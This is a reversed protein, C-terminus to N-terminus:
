KPLDEGNKYAQWFAQTAGNWEVNNGDASPVTPLTTSGMPSNIVTGTVSRLESISMTHVTENSAVAILKPLSFAQDRLNKGRLATLLGRMVDQQRSIRSLDSGDGTGKRARLLKVIEAGTYHKTTVKDQPLQAINGDKDLPMKVGGLSDVISKVGNMTIAVSDHIEIGAAERLADATCNMGKVGPSDSSSSASTAGPKSAVSGYAFAANLKTVEGKHSGTCAPMKVQSDRPVSVVDVWSPNSRIRILMMVDSRQGELTNETGDIGLLLINRPEGSAADYADVNDSTIGTLKWWMLGAFILVLILLVAIATMFASLITHNVIFSKVGRKNQGAQNTPVSNTKARKSKM